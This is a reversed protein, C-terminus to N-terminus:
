THIGKTLINVKFDSANEQPEQHLYVNTEDQKLENVFNVTKLRPLDALDQRIIKAYKTNLLVNIKEHTRHLELFYEYIKIRSDINFDLNIDIHRDTNDTYKLLGCPDASKNRLRNKINLLSWKEIYDKHLNLGLKKQSATIRKKDTLIDELEQASEYMLCNHEPILIPGVNNWESIKDIILLAGTQAIEFIRNNLDSNLTINLAASCSHLEQSISRNNGHIHRIKNKTILLPAIRSRRPHFKGIQGYFVVDSSRNKYLNNSDIFSHSSIAPEFYFNAQTVDRFWHAHRINNTFILGDVPENKIYNRLRTIPNPLHHTDGMCIFVKEAAKKLNKPLYPMTADIFIFLHMVKPISKSDLLEKLDFEGRPITFYPTNLTNDNQSEFDSVIGTLQHDDLKPPLYHKPDCHWLVITNINKM